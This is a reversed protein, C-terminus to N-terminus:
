YHEKELPSFGNHERWVNDFTEQLACTDGTLCSQDVSM